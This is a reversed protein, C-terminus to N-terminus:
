HCSSASSPSVLHRTPAVNLGLLVASAGGDIQQDFAMTKVLANRRIVNSNKGSIKSLNSLWEAEVQCRFFYAVGGARLHKGRSGDLKMLIVEIVILKNLRARLKRPLKKM